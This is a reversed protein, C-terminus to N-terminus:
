WKQVRYFRQQDTPLPDTLLLMGGDGPVLPLSNWNTDSLSNVFQLAYARGSQSPLSLSFGNAGIGPNALLVSSVPPGNGILAMSHNAGAAINVVNTLGAPVDTQGYTNNGWATVTGNALLALNHYEGAAIAVVNSLGSPVNTQGYYNQGWATVTGDSKLALAHYYGAAIATVNSLGAPPNTQGYTDIGWATVTGDAKLAMGFDAGESIAVANNINTLAAPPNGGAPSYGGLLTGNPHLALPAYNIPAIAIANTFGSLPQIVDGALWGAVVGNGELVLFLTGQGAYGGGGAIALINTVAPQNTVPWHIATGDSRLALCDMREYGGGAIAVVNTLGAILNTEGFNGGWVAVQSFSLIANSSTVSGYANSVIVRYTGFQQPQVNTLTLVNTWTGPVDMGNFQWDFSFPAQGSVNVKFMAPGNPWTTQSTPQTTILLPLVSLTANSSVAAGYSNTVVVSYQGSQSLVVNSLILPNNTADPLNTGNFLWQYFWPQSGDVGVNFTATAGALVTQSQPQGVITIPLVTLTANSSVAMGYSNTVVVSYLGSQSLVVNSLILPNNTADPLNTGNFLWQYFWPQSGDVGVNFTATAGALVTQSQPQGVITIPLVTLTANSSVAMGYSNTVVVSYLGSQSLVVNSLILPNNTADPLNTGNFSWQYLWPQPGDVSVNFTATAGALVTQSQPQGVIAIPLVTLTANSSAIMGYFNTVAVSYQGSEGAVVNSLVLPNNTADPLNTGNFQWQYALLQSGTATVSLVASSGLVVAEDQPQVNIVPPGGFPVQNQYISITNNYSNAFVIDPRGDGDLDGIAMGWANYGTAFDMRPALSDSAFSGPTSVNRFISLLSSLETVVALDPKGSGDLDALAPTHGRGGLAFDIHPEFSNTTLSGVSSINRLVSVAGQPLYFAVIIDPLGDGDLDGIALQVPQSPVSLNVAPAFSNTTLSGTTGINRLLSLTKAGSNATVIDPLGDGDLDAVAVDDCGAGTPIDVRSAFSNTTLSGVTGTNQFISVTGDGTNAVLLDPKGDGDLDRVAVGQPSKGTAIDVRTAFSSASINGPTCTNQYISVLSQSYDTVIIDPKGDGDVDAVVLGYPSYSGPPTVLTVPSAFSNATLVGNASSNRYLSITNGYDNAVILEPKGDGDLDAIVVKNPGSGAPIVIQPGLSTNTFIDGSFFSPLFPANAYATLGGVTETIPSYTAGPPVTVVLNTVSASVVAAQVAGFYVTNSAAISSFNTGTLTVATEPYAMAPSFGVILPVGPPPQNVTLVANSSIATGQSNTITVQYDGADSATVNSIVLTANTAGSIRASDLLNTGDFSWQYFLPTQGSAVVSFVASFGLLNTSNLPQTTISPAPGALAIRPAFFFVVVFVLFRSPLMQFM